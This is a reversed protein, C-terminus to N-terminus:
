LCILMDIGSLVKILRNIGLKHLLKGDVKEFRLIMSIFVTWSPFFVLVFNTVSLFHDQLTWDQLVIFIQDRLQLQAKFSM